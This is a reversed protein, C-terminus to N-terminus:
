RRVYSNYRNYGNLVELYLSDRFFERGDNYKKNNLKCLTLTKVSSIRKERLKYAIHIIVVKAM